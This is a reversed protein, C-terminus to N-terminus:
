ELIWVHSIHIASLAQYFSCQEEHKEQLSVKMNRGFTTEKEGTRTDPSHNQSSIMGHPKQEQSVSLLIAEIQTRESLFSLTTCKFLSCSCTLCPKGAVPVAPPEASLWGMWPALISCKWIVEGESYTMENIVPRPRLCLSWLWSLRMTIKRFQWGGLILAIIFIM